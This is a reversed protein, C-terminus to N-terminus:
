KAANLSKMDIVFHYKVDSKLMREYAENISQINILEIDSTINHEGCFDLMEQTEKIGGVLSGALKRRGFILAATDLEGTPGVSGVVCMTGDVKLLGMYHNTNHQVPITNLLFDFKGAMSAMAEENTSLLVEDAGLSKADAGKKESTTIMVTHAGMAHAFKVGMHGLGGLGIIGVTMGPGVNWHKLPSYTTIGACLLPAAGAPDLNEPVTLVFHRNVVISESYGGYTFGGEDETPSGYTATFGNLCYQELDLKCSSCTRCSDVFCGVAVRQGVQLDLVDVGLRTVKGVVEHGPVVPYNAGGWDDRVMHIDTHCVGCFEIQIQVDNSGVPRRGILMHELLSTSSTAGFAPVHTM